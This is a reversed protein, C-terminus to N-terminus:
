LFVAILTRRLRGGVGGGEGSSEGDRGGFGM